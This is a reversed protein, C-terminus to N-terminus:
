HNKTTHINLTSYIYWSYLFSLALPPYKRLTCSHLARSRVDYRRIYREEM